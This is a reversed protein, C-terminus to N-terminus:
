NLRFSKRHWECPGFSALVLYHAATGYGKNSRFGYEPYQLDLGDMLSDRHVKALISAAAICAHHSDGKVLAKGPIGDPLDRGDVLAYPAFGKLESFARQFGLLTARLINIEDITVPPIEVIAFALASDRIQNYLITRRKASLLKSDNLGPLVVDYNLVVAAVVVPGALAGRGAEDLGAMVSLQNEQMLRADNQFLVSM